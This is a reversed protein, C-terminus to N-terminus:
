LLTYSLRRAAYSYDKVKSVELYFLFLCVYFTFGTGVELYCAVNTVGVHM